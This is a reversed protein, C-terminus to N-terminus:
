ADEYEDHRRWWEYPKTQPYGAPSDEWNEQRGLPTLDLFTWVSGLAEVGRSTTFYTRFLGDGERLFVSLGFTEGDQYVDPQPTEPGVGFDFNFDSEFSSVWTFAWGMRRQYAEIKAYPARSVAVLTVDRQNLHVVIGNFTDAVHSCHPCGAASKPDFMFHYVLLQGRGDFLDALTRRGSAGEFSYPKEVLEWPLERRERSLDDRLRTLAKEKDLLARRAALWADHSVIPHNAFSDADTLM